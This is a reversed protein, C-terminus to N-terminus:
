VLRLNLQREQGAHREVFAEVTSPLDDYAANFRRRIERAIDASVDDAWHEATNFSVVRIPNNYQGAILDRIVTELDATEIDAERFYRGIAGFDDLVLYVNQDDVDKPVLTPTWSSRMPASRQGNRHLGLAIEHAAEVHEMIIADHAPDVQMLVAGLHSVVEYLPGNDVANLSSRPQGYESSWLRM